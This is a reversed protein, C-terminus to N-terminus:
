YESFDLGELDTGICRHLTVRTEKYRSLDRKERTMNFVYDTVAGAVTSGQVMWTDVLLPSQVQECVAVPGSGQKALYVQSSSGCDMAFRQLYWFTCTANVGQVIYTTNGKWLSKVDLCPDATCNALLGPVVFFPM